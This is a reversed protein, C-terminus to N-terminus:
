LCKGGKALVIHVVLLVGLTEDAEERQRATNAGHKAQIFQKAYAM